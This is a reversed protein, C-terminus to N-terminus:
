IAELYESVQGGQKQASEGSYDLDGFKTCFKNPKNAKQMKQFRIEFYM